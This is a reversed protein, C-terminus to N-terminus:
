ESEKNLEPASLNVQIAEKSIDPDSGLKTILCGVALVRFSYESKSHLRILKQKSFGDGALETMELLSSLGVEKATESPKM